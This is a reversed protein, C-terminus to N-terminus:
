FPLGKNNKRQITAGKELAASGATWHGADGHRQYQSGRCALRIESRLAGAKEISKKKKGYFFFLFFIEKEGAM